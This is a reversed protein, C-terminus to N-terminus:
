DRGSLFTIISLGGFVGCSIWLNTSINKNSSFSIALVLLIVTILFFALAIMASMNNWDYSLYM